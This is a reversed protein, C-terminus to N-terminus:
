RSTPTERSSLLRNLFRAIESHLWRPGGRHGYRIPQPFEPNFYESEPNTWNYLTTRSAICLIRRVQREDILFDGDSFM